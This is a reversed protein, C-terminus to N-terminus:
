EFIGAPIPESFRFDAVPFNSYSVKKYCKLGVQKGKLLLKWSLFM